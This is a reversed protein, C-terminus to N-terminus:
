YSPSRDKDSFTDLGSFVSQFDNYFQRFYGLYFSSGVLSCLFILTLCFFIQKVNMYNQKVSHKGFYFLFQKGAMFINLM